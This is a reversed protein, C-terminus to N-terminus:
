ESRYTHSWLCALIYASLTSTADINFYTLGTAPTCTMSYGLTDGADSDACTTTVLTSSLAGNEPVTITTGLNSISPQNNIGLFLLIYRLYSPFVWIFIQKMYNDIKTNIKKLLM